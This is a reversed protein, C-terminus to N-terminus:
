SVEENQGHLVSISTENFKGTAFAHMYHVTENLIPKLENREVRSFSALVFDAMDSHELHNNKVGIRIRAFGDGIVQEISKVGNHGGSSGGVRMRLRGFEITIDDYVILIDPDNVRFYNQLKVVALGSKNMFTHPKALIVKEGALNTEILEAQLNSKPKFEGIQYHSAFFDLAMFGANHRTNNYQRGVNGLGVILKPQMVLPIGPSTIQDRIAM